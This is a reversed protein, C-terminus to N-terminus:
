LADMRAMEVEALGAPRGVGSGGDFTFSIYM